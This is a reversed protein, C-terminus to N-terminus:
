VSMLRAILLLICLTIVSQGTDIGTISIYDKPFDLTLDVANVPIHATVYVDITFQEGARVSKVSSELHVFSKNGSGITSAALIAAFAFVLPFAYRVTTSQNTSILSRVYKFLWQM